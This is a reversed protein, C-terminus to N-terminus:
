VVLLIVWNVPADCKQRGNKVINYEINQEIETHWIFAKDLGLVQIFCFLYNAHTKDNIEKLFISPNQPNNRTYICCVICFHVWWQYICHKPWSSEESGESVTEMTKSVEETSNHAADENTENPTSCHFPTM